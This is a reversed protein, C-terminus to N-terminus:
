AINIGHIRLWAVLKVGEARERQAQQQAGRALFELGGEYHLMRGSWAVRFRILGDFVQLIVHPIL